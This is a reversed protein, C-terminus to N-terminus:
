PGCNTVLNEPELPRSKYLVAYLCVCVLVASSCPCVPLLLAVSPCVHVYIPRIM